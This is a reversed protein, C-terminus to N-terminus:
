REVYPIVLPASAVVEGNGDHEPDFKLRVEFEEFCRLETFEVRVPILLSDYPAVTTDGQVRSGAAMGNLRIYPSLSDTGSEVAEIQYDFTLGFADPFEVKFEGDFVGPYPLSWPVNRAEFCPNKSIMTIRSK